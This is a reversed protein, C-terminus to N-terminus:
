REASTTAIVKPTAEVRDDIELLKALKPPLLRYILKIEASAVNAPVEYTVMRTEDPGLRTDRVMKKSFPAPVPKGNADHYVKNLVSDPHEAMPNDTFNQWVVEGDKDKGVVKVVALRGPFGSPFGHVSKNALTVTLGDDGFAASMAVASELISKDNQYWARHPGLFQHSAHKDQRGVAGAPGEVEPMHCSVCTEDGGHERFEPGTTCAPAGTPTKTANHCSMCLTVGDQMAPLAKGTGHVPSAGPELDRSSRMVNGEEWTLADVGVKGPASEVAAVNHCTACSVGAKGAVTDPQDPSRANHCKACKEAIHEGQKKMRLARMSGYIPDNDHHARSHMSETWEEYITGHCGKCSQPDDIDIGAHPSGHESTEDAKSSTPAATTPATPEATPQAEEKDCASSLLVAVTLLISLYRM